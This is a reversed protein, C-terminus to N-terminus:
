NGGLGPLPGGEPMVMPEQGDQGEVSNAPPALLDDMTSKLQELKFDPLQYAWPAWKANNDLAEKMVAQKIAVKAEAIEKEKYSSTAAESTPQTTAPDAKAPANPDKAPTTIDAPMNAGPAAAGTPVVAAAPAPDPDVYSAGFRVWSKGDKMVITYTITTGDFCEVKGQITEPGDWTFESAPKVDDFSVYSLAQAVRQPAFEDKLTRGEPIQNVQFNPEDMSDRFVKLATAENGGRTITASRVKENRLEIVKRDLFSMADPVADLQMQVLLSQPEGNRRVFRQNKGLGPPPSFPDTASGGTDQKGVILGALEKANDDQLSVLMSKAGSKSPDEVELRDYLDPNSTKTEVIKAETLAAVLPRVADFRAPYGGKNELFWNKGSPDRVLVVETADRKISIRAIDKIKDALGPFAMQDTAKANDTSAKQTSTSPARNNVVIAAIIALGVTAGALMILSKSTM